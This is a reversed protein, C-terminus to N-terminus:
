FLTYIFPALVSGQAFIFLLGFLLFIIMMPMLWWLRQQWLFIFLERIANLRMTLRTLAKM